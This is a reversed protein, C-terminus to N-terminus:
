RIVAIENCSAVLPRKLKGACTPLEVWTLQILFCKVMGAERSSKARQLMEWHPEPSGAAGADGHCCLLRPGVAM